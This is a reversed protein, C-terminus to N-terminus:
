DGRKRALDRNDMFAECDSLPQFDLVVLVMESYEREEVLLLQNRPSEGPEDDGEAQSEVPM